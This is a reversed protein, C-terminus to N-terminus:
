MFDIEASPVIDAFQGLILNHHDIITEAPLLESEFTGHCDKALIVHYGHSFASKVTTDVCYETQVGCIVVTDAGDQRLLSCLETNLFSDANFKIIKRDGEQPAIEPHVQWLPEGEARPSGQGETYYVYYVPSESKRAKEILMKTNELLISEHYMSKGGYDKWIFPM